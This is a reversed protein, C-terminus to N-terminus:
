LRLSDLPYVGAVSPIKKDMTNGNYGIVNRGGSQVLKWWDDELPILMNFGFWRARRMELWLWDSGRTSLLPYLHMDRM